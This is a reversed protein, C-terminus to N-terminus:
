GQSTKPRYNADVLKRADDYNPAAHDVIPHAPGAEPYRRIPSKKAYRNYTPSKTYPMYYTDGKVKDKPIRGSSLTLNERAVRNSERNPTLHGRQPTM